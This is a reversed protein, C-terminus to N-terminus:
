APRRPQRSREAEHDRPSRPHKCGRRRHWVRRDYGARPHNGGRRAWSECFVFLTLLDDSWVLGLMSGMFAYLLLYFFGQRADGEFYYATYFAICAGVGTIILGFFLSLGDLRLAVELGLTSAWVTRETLVAGNAIVPLQLAQWVTVAAAPLAALWAFATSRHPKLLWFIPASAFLLTLSLALVPM